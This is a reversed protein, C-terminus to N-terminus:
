FIFFPAVLHEKYVEFFTPIPVAMKNPGWIMDSKRVDAEDEM